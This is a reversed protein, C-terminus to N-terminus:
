LLEVCEDGVLRMQAGENVAPPRQQHHIIIVGSAIAPTSYPRPPSNGGESRRTAFCCGPEGRGTHIRPRQLRWPPHSAYPLQVSLLSLEDPPKEASLPARALAFAILARTPRFAVDIVPPRANIGTSPVLRSIWLAILGRSANQRDSLDRPSKDRAFRAISLVSWVLELKLHM